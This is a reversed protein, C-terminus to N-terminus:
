RPLNKGIFNPIWSANDRIYRIGHSDALPHEKKFNLLRSQDHNSCYELQGNSEENAVSEVDSDIDFRDPVDLSVDPSGDTESAPSDHNKGHQHEMSGTDDSSSTNNRKKERRYCRIWKYLNVNDLEKPHHVYDHVPSLGMIRGKKKIVM